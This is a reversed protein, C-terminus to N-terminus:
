RAKRVVIFQSMRFSHALVSRNEMRHSRDSIKIPYPMMSPMRSIM